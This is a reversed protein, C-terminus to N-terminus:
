IDDCAGKVIYVYFVLAYQDISDHLVQSHPQNEM